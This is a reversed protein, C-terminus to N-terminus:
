FTESNKTITTMWTTHLGSCRYESLTGVCIWMLEHWVPRQKLDLGICVSFLKLNRDVLIWLDSRLSLAKILEPFCLNMCFWYTCSEGMEVFLDAMLVQLYGPHWAWLVKKEKARTPSKHIALVNKLFAFSIRLSFAVQFIIKKYESTM